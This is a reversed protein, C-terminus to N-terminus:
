FLGGILHVLAAPISALFRLPPVSVALMAPRTAPLTYAVVLAVVLAAVAIGTILAARRSLPAPDADPAPSPHRNV